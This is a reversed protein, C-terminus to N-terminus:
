IEGHNVAYARLIRSPTWRLARVRGARSPQGTNHDTPDHTFKRSTVQGEGLKAQALGTKVTPVVCPGNDLSSSKDRLHLAIEFGNWGPVIGLDRSSRRSRGSTIAHDTLFPGTIEIALLTKQFSKYSCPFPPRQLHVDDPHHEEVPLELDI